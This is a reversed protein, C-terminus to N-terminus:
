GSQHRTGRGIVQGRKFVTVNELGAEKFWTLVTSETQPSDFQPSLMDYTDLVAWEKLQQETSPYMGEYNAVPVLNRLWRGVGPVRGLARSVPLLIPVWKEM